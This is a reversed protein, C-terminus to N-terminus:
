CPHTCSDAFNGTAFCKYYSHEGCFKLENGKRWCKGKHERSGCTITPTEGATLAEVNEDLLQQNMSNQNIYSKYSVFTMTVITLTVSIAITFRKKM